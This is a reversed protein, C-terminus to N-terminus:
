RIKITFHILLYSAHVTYANFCVQDGVAATIKWEGLHPVDSLQFENSFVGNVTNVGNWAKLM